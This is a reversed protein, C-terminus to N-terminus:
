VTGGRMAILEVMTKPVRPEGAGQGTQLDTALSECDRLLLNTPHRAERYLKRHHTPYFAAVREALEPGLRDVLRSLDSNVRANRIPECGWIREYSSRYADWCGASKAPRALSRAEGVTKEKKRKWREEKRLDSESESESKQNQNRVEGPSMASVPAPCPPFLPTSMSRDRQDKKQKAKRKRQDEDRLMRKSSITIEELNEPSKRRVVKAVGCRELEALCAAVEAV